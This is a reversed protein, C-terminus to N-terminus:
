SVSKVQPLSLGVMTKGSPHDRIVRAQMYELLTQEKAGLEDSVAAYSDASNHQMALYQQIDATNDLMVAAAEAEGKEWKVQTRKKAQILQTELSVRTSNQEAEAVQLDQRHVETEQIADEFEKPLAVTRLQFSFIMAHLKEEFDKRLQEEMARGIITRQTFFENASYATAAETLRDIALRVYVNHCQPYQGLTVYLDYVKDMMIQYQFSLEIAVNLGDKTRSQLKEEGPSTLDAQMDSDSFQITTLVAPFRVFRNLPSIWYRGSEYTKKEVKRTVLSYNLAYETIEVSGFGYLVVIILAAGFSAALGLSSNQFFGTIGDLPAPPAARNPLPRAEGGLRM